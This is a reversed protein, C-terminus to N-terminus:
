VVRMNTILYNFIQCSPGLGNWESRCGLFIIIRLPLCVKRKRCKECAIACRQRRKNTLNRGEPHVYDNYSPLNHYSTNSPPRQDTLSANFPIMDDQHRKGDVAPCPQASQVCPLYQQVNQSFRETAASDTGDPLGDLVGPLAQRLSPLSVWNNMGTATGTLCCRASSYFILSLSLNTM